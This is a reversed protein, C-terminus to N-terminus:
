FAEPSNIERGDPEYRINPGHSVSRCGIKWKNIVYSLYLISQKRQLAMEPWYDHGRKINSEEPRSWEGEMGIELELKNIVLCIHSFLMVNIRLILIYYTILM